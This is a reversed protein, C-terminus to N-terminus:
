TLMGLVRVVDGVSGGALVRRAENIFVSEWEYSLALYEGALRAYTSNHMGKPRTLLPNNGSPNLRGRIRALRRDLADLPDDNQQSAYYDLGACKRCLWGSAFLVGCRRGCGPCAWWVRRGGFHQDSYAFSVFVGSLWVGRGPEVRVRLSRGGRWEVRAWTPRDLGVSRQLYGISLRQRQDATTRKDWRYWRGRGDM